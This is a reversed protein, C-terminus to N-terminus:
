LWMRWSSLINVYAAHDEEMHGGVKLAQQIEFLQATLPVPADVAHATALVNKIDKHNISIKGGPKFNRACIMPAKADLVASGALGGRIAQYIKMPDVGAKVAFM